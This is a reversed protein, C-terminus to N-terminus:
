QVGDEAGDVQPSELGADIFGREALQPRLKDRLADHAARLAALEEGALARDKLASRVQWWGADWTEIKFKATRLRGLNALYARWVAEGAHLVARAEPSLARGQLWQAVYRPTATPLQMAIDSDGIDWSRVAAPLWPFFHNPVEYVQGAYAVHRM